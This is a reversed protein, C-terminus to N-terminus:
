ECKAWLCRREQTAQGWVSDAQYAVSGQHPGSAARGVWSMCSGSNQRGCGAQALMATERLISSNWDPEQSALSMCPSLTKQSQSLPWRGVCSVPAVKGTNLGGCLWIKM